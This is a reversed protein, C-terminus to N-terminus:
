RQHQANGRERRAIVCSEDEQCRGTLLRLGRRRRRCRATSNGRRRGMRIPGTDLRVALGVATETGDDARRAAFAREGAAM